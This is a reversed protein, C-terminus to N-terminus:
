REEGADEEEEEGDTIKGQLCLAFLFNAIHLATLSEVGSEGFRVLRPREIQKMVLKEKKNAPSPQESALAAIRSASSSSSSKSFTFFSLFFLSSLCPTMLEDLLSVPEACKNTKLFARMIQM